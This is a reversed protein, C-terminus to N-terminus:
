NKSVDLEEILYDKLQKEKCAVGILYIKRGNHLYKEFYRKDKIQQLASEATDKVKFELIYIHTQTQVVVDISGIATHVEADAYYGLLKFTLFIVSHYYSELKSEFIEYPINQFLTNLHV